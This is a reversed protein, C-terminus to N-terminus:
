SIPNRSLRSREMILVRACVGCVCWVISGRFFPRPSQILRGRQRGQQNRGSDRHDRRHIRLRCEPVGDGHVQGERALCEPCLAEQADAIEFFSDTM